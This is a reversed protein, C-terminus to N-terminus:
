SIDRIHPSRRIFCVAYSVLSILMFVACVVVIMLRYLPAMGPFLMLAITGLFLVTTCIKGAFLAGDLMKKKRFLLIGMVTMMAEKVIFLLLLPLIEIHRITLCLIIVGQTMKDALPDLLIGLRSIMHCKRAIIGDVMDTIASFALVSASILYEKATEAKMYLYAFLPILLLRFVSLLNPITLIDKKVDVDNM